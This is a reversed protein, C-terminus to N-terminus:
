KKLHDRVVEGAWERVIRNAQDREEAALAEVKAGWAEEKMVEDWADAALLEIMRGMNKKNIEGHKSAVAVLRNRNVFPRLHEQVVQGPTTGTVAAAGGRGGGKQKAMRWQKKTEKGMAGVKESFADAKIKLIIRRGEAMLLEKAPRIVIGEAMNGAIKPLGLLGPVTTEFVPDFKMAEGFSCTRLPQLFPVGAEKLVEAMVNYDVFGRGDHLDFALFEIQPSYQVERQVAMADAPPDALSPHAYIGGFLEGYVTVIASDAEVTILGRARMIEWCQTIGARHRDRVAQWGYFQDYEALPASRKFCVVDVGNTALSFNAGHVKEFVLWPTRKAIPDSQIPISRSSSSEEISTYPHHPQWAM